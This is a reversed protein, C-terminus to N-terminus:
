LLREEIKERNACSRCRRRTLARREHDRGAATRRGNRWPRRDSCIKTGAIWRFTEGGGRRVDRINGARNGPKWHLDVFRGNDPWVHHTRPTRASQVRCLQEMSRGSQFERDFSAAG